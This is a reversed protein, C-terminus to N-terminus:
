GLDQVGWIRPRLWVLLRPHRPLRWISAHGLGQVRIIGQVAVGFKFGWVCLEKNKLEFGCDTFM